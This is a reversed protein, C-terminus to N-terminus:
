KTAAVACLCVSSEKGHIGVPSTAQLSPKHALCSVRNLPYLIEQAPFPSPLPTTGFHGLQNISNVSEAVDPLLQVPHSLDEQQRQYAANTSARAGEEGIPTLSRHLSTPRDSNQRSLPDPSLMSPATNYSSISPPMLLGSSFATQYTGDSSISQMEEVISAGPPTQADEQEASLYSASSRGSRGCGSDNGPTQQGSSVPSRGEPHQPVVAFPLRLAGPVPCSGGLPCGQVHARVEEMFAYCESCFSPNHDLYHRWRQRAAVCREHVCQLWQSPSSCLCALAM